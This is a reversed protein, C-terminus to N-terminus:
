CCSTCTVRTSHLCLWGEGLSPPDPRKVFGATVRDDEKWGTHLPESACVRGHRPGSIGSSQGRAHRHGRPGGYQSVGTRAHQGERNKDHTKTEVGERAATTQSRKEAPSKPPPPKYCTRWAPSLEGEGKRCGKDLAEEMAEKKREQEQREMQQNPVGKDPNDASVGAGDVAGSGGVNDSEGSSMGGQESAEMEPREETEQRPVTRPVDEGTQEGAGDAPRESEPDPGTRPGTGEEPKAQGGVGWGEEKAGSGAAGLASLLM